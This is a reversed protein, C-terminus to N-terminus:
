IYIQFLLITTNSYLARLVLQKFPQIYIMNLNYVSWLYRPKPHIPTNLLRTVRFLFLSCLLLETYNGLLTYKITIPNDTCHKLQHM